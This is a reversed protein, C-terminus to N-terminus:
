PEKAAPPMAGTLALFADELTAGSLALDHIDLGSAYLAHLTADQNSTHLQVTEGESHMGTVGPLTDLGATPQGRRSFRLVHTGTAAKIHEPTDDAIVRGHDIVVIRDANADAEELYHTAFLVTHGQEAYRRMSLWFARRATVDMAVTPEDLLLLDPDGAIALAFRVRQAQGGSLRDTHRSAVGRLDALELAEKLALPAPYRRRVFDVLERVTAGPVLEGQQLMAGVLGAKVAQKPHQGLVRLDGRDPPILGLLLNVSTSKGAGNPGLLAVSQGTPVALSMEDVARVPGYSKTIEDFVLADAGGRSHPATLM